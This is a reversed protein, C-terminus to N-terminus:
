IRLPPEVPTINARLEYSQKGVRALTPSHATLVGGLNRLVVSNTPLSGHWALLDQLGLVLRPALPVPWLGGATLAPNTATAKDKQRSKSLAEDAQRM